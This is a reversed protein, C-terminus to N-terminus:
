HWFCVCGVEAPHDLYYIDRTPTKYRLIKLVVYIDGGAALTMAVGLVILLLSGTAMSAVSLGAGLVILPMLAGLIYAGERLPTKCTCYPTLYEKIFGFEIDRFHNRAFIAWTAGHILEHVVALVVFCVLFAAVLALPNMEGTYQPRGLVLYGAVEPYCLPLACLFAMLNARVIDVTLTESTYGQKEMEACVVNFQAIRRREAQTYEHGEM